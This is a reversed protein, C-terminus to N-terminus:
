FAPPTLFLVAVSRSLMLVGSFIICSISILLTTFEKPVM